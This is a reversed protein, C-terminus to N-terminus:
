MSLTAVMENVVVSVPTNNITNTYPKNYRYCMIKLINKQFSTKLTYDIETCELPTTLSDDIYGDNGRVTINLKQFSINNFLIEYPFYISFVICEMSSSIYGPFVSSILSYETGSSNDIYNENILSYKIDVNGYTGNIFSYLPEENGNFISSTAYIFSTKSANKNINCYPRITVRSNTIYFLYEKNYNDEINIQTESMLYESNNYVYIFAKIDNYCEHANITSHHISVKSQYIHQSINISSYSINSVSANYLINSQDNGEISCNLIRIRSHSLNTSYSLSPKPNEIKIVTKDTESFGEIYFFSNYVIQTELYKNVAEISDWIITVRPVTVSIIINMNLICAPLYYDGSEDIYIYASNIHYNQMIDFAQGLTKLPIQDLNKVTDNGTISKIHFSQLSNIFYQDPIGIKYSVGDLSLNTINNMFEIAIQCLLIEGLVLFLRPTLLNKM